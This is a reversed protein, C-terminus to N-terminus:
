DGEPVVLQIARVPCVQVCLACEVCDAPASLGPLRGAMALCETPCVVVCDGCGTCLTEDILPLANM